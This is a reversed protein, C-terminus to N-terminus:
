HKPVMLEEALNNLAIEIATEFRDVANPVGAWREDLAVGIEFGNRTLVICIAGRSEPLGKQLTFALQGIPHHLTAEGEIKIKEIDQPTREM